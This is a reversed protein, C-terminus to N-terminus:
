DQRVRVGKGELIDIGDDVKVKMKNRLRIKIVLEMVEPIRAKRNVGVLM